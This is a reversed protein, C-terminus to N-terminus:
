SGMGREIKRLLERCAVADKTSGLNELIQLARLAESTAEELRGQQYWVEAQLRTVRGVSYVDYVAYLKAQEIHVNADDFEDEDLFLEALCHHIRYLQGRWHSPFAIEQAKEFHHIAKKREGKSRYVNGLVRHTKCILFKYGGYQHALNISCLADNEADDLQRDDLLSWALEYLAMAQGITHGLQKYIELSERADRIGEKPLGLSRNAESLNRLAEAAQFRDGRQRDLKLGHNLLRKQETYYGIASSLWSLKFLCKSKSPHDDSLAEIKPRLITQRPKYWYLHEVFHYCTDLVNGTTLDTSTFIDLLYEVNADESVIWRGEEYGPWDPNIDVSLRDSYRDKTACLLPSSKPDRPVLYDRIPALMTTFGNSRYTLSLTCFKDLVHTIDPITPFLWDLNNDNLGQPFFAVVGLLERASPAPKHLTSSPTPEHLTSSAATKPFTPSHPPVLKRFTQSALSLEITAALSGSLDTRLVQARQSEWEKALRDYDWMNHTAVTALLTISLAHFDLRRVLRSVVDSRGGNDYIGYFIDCASEMSLIPIVPRKCHPPVLTIRSTIGLCVNDFRTLEEVVTYIERADTGAPDLISEANDLFLIMKSSSLFPRLPTLDEPNKIGAGIVKSLQNLLHASSAPFRDCRIFRRNDGFRDKIRDHHLIKLAISTKGIGGTGILAVPKLNEALGVIEEILKDRGFCARPPPPPLEGLIASRLYLVTFGEREYGSVQSSDLPCDTQISSSCFGTSVSPHGGITGAQGALANRHIDAVLTHTNIALETQFCTLSYRPSYGSRVNFVQLISSLEQKWAVIMEKDTKARIFRYVVNRKGRKAVRGQIGAVTRRDLIPCTLSM